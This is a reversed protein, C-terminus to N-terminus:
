EWNSPKGVPKSNFREYALNKRERERRLSENADKTKSEYEKRENEEFDLIKQYSGFKERETSFEGNGLKYCVPGWEVSSLYTSCGYIKEWRRGGNATFEFNIWDSDSSFAPVIRLMFDKPDHNFKKFIKFM